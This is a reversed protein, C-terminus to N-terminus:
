LRVAPATICPRSTAKATMSMAPRRGMPSRPRAAAPATATSCTPATVATSRPGATASRSGTATTPRPPRTVRPMPSRPPPATTPPRIPNGSTAGASVSQGAANVVESYGTGGGDNQSYSYGGGAYQAYSTSTGYFTYSDYGYSGDAKTWNDGTDFGDAAYNTTTVDGAADTVVTTSGSAGGWLGGFTDTTVTGNGNNVYLSYSSSGSMATGVSTGNANFADSGNVGSPDYIDFWTDDVKAGSADYLTTFQENGYKGGISVADNFLALNLATQVTQGTADTGVVQLALTGLDGAPPAGTLTNTSPDFSLWSPLTTGDAQTVNYTITDAPDSDIVTDAPLTFNVPLDPAAQLTPLTVGAVPPADAPHPPALALMQSLTLTTGNSFTFDQIGEGTKGADAMVVQVNASTGWSIDLAWRNGAAAVQVWSFSLQDPTISGNFQVTHLFDAAVEAATPFRGGYVQTIWNENTVAYDAVDYYGTDDIIDTGQNVDTNIIYTDRGGGGNMFDNGTGAVLTDDGSSGLMTDNGSGGYIFADAVPADFGLGPSNADYPVQGWATFQEIEHIPASANAASTGDPGVFVNGDGTNVVIQGNGLYITNTDPGADIEGIAGSLTYTYTNYTATATVPVTVKTTRTTAATTGVQVIVGVPQGFGNTIVISNPQEPVVSVPFGDYYLGDNPPLSELEFIPSGPIYESNTFTEMVTTTVSYSSTNEQAQVGGNESGQVVGADSNIVSKGIPPTKVTFTDTYYPDHAKYFAAQEQNLVNLSAIISSSFSTEMAAIQSDVAGADAPGSTVTNGNADKTYNSVVGTASISTGSSSGDPNFIDSGHSGDAKQWTDNTEDGYPDFYSVTINGHGDNTYSSYSLDVAVTTGSSSGNANFTDTETSGDANVISDGTKNGHADFYTTVKNGLVDEVYRSSTGDANTAAGSSSGDANFTDSGFSHDADTWVDSIEVGSSDYTKSITDGLGDSTTITQPEGGGAGSQGSTNYLYSSSSGDPLSQSYEAEVGAATYSITTITGLGNNTVDSYSGDANTVLTFSSGDANFTESARSGDANQTIQGTKQGAASYLTAVSNGAGDISVDRYSGDANTIVFESSGNPNLTETGSTGDTNKWSDGTKTGTPNYATTYSDGSADSVTISTGIKTGTAGYLTTSTLGAGESVALSSGTVNGNADYVTTTISGDGNTAQVSSGTLQGSANFHSTTFSGDNNNTVTTSGLSTGNTDEYDTTSDGNSSAVVMNKSVLVGSASYNDTTTYTSGSPGGSVSVTRTGTLSGFTYYSTSGNGQSDTTSQSSTGDANNITTTTSGDAAVISTGHSGDPRQWSQGTLNAHADFYQLAIGGQGDLSYSTSTGDANVNSGWSSGDSNVDNTGTPTSQALLALVSSKSGDAFSIQNLGGGQITVFGGQDDAITVVSAGDVVESSASLDGLGIGAAFALTDVGGSQTITVNGGDANAEYTVVGGGGVLTDNGSGAVLTDSGFKVTADLDNGVATLSASGTLTMNQIGEPVDVSIASTAATIGTTAQALLDTLSASSGDAFSIQDLPGNASADIVVSGGQDNQVTIVTSGDAATAATASLDALRWARVM